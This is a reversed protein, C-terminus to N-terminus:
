SKDWFVINIEGDYGFLKERSSALLLEEKDNLAMQLSFRIGWYPQLGSCDYRTSIDWNRKDFEYQVALLYLSM